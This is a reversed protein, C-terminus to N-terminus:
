AGTKKRNTFKIVTALPESDSIKTSIQLTCLSDSWSPLVKIKLNAAKMSKLLKPQKDLSELWNALSLRRQWPEDLGFITTWETPWQLEKHM